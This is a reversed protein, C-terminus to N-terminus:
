AVENYRHKCLYQGAQQQQDRDSSCSGPDRLVGDHDAGTGPRYGTEGGGGGATKNMHTM